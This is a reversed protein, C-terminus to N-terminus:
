LKDTSEHFLKQIWPAHDFETLLKQCLAKGESTPMKATKGAIVIGQLEEYAADLDINVIFHEYLDGAAIEERATKLRRLRVELSDTGRSELRKWLTEISPPLIFVSHADKLKERAQKWGQVDIELIVSKGNKHIREIEAKSTGYFKGFVEAHELMEGNQVLARFAEPTVFHYDVGNAEGGRIPRATYSISVEVLDPHEQVLRRNLTTKGTGSPASIVFVQQSSAM